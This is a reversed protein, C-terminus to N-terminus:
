SKKCKFRRIIALALALSGFMAAYASPEPISALLQDEQLVGSTLRVEDVVGAIRTTPTIGSGTSSSAEAGIIFPASSDFITTAGLSFSESQLSGGASLDQFYFTGATGAGTADVSFAVYYANGTQLAGFNTTSFSNSSLNSGTTSLQVGLQLNSSNYTLRWSSSNGPNDAKSALINLSNFNDFQYYGEYTFSSLNLAPSDNLGAATIEGSGNLLQLASLNSAGTQPVSTPFDSPPTTAAPGGPQFRIQQLDNGAPSTDNLLAGDDGMRWYGVTTQAQLLPASGFAVLACTLTIISTTPRKM